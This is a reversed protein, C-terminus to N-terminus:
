FHMIEDLSTSPSVSGQQNLHRPIEAEIVSQFMRGEERTPRRLRTAAESEAVQEVVQSPHNLPALQANPSIKRSFGVRLQSFFAGSMQTITGAISIATRPHHNLAPLPIEMTLIHRISQHNYYKTKLESDPIAKIFKRVANKLSNLNLNKILPRCEEASLNEKHLLYFITPIYLSIEPAMLEPVGLIVALEPTIDSFYGAQFAAINCAALKKMINREVSVSAVANQERTNDFFMKWQTNNNLAESLCKINLPFPLGALYDVIISGDFSFNEVDEQTFPREFIINVILAKEKENLCNPIDTCSFIYALIHTVEENPKKLWLYYATLASLAQYQEHFIHESCSFLKRINQSSFNSLIAKLNKKQKELSSNEKFRQYYDLLPM